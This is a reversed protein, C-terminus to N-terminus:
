NYYNRQLKKSFRCTPDSCRCIIVGKRDKDTKNDKANALVWHLTSYFHYHIVRTRNRIDFSFFNLTENNHMINARPIKKYIGNILNIRFTSPTKEYINQKKKM